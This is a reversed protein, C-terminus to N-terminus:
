YKDIGKNGRIIPERLIFNSVGRDFIWLNLCRLKKCDSLGLSHKNYTYELETEDISGNIM